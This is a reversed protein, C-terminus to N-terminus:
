SGESKRHRRSASRVRSRHNPHRTKKEKRGSKLRRDCLADSVETLQRVLDRFRQYEAMQHRTEDLASDPIGRCRSQAGVKRTLQWSAHKTGNPRACQCTARGCQRRLRSLSGPRFDGIAAIQALLADRQAELQPLDNM